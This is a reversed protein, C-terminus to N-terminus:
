STFVSSEVISKMSQFISVFLLDRFYVVIPDQFCLSILLAIRRMIIFELGDQEWIKDAKERWGKIVGGCDKKCGLCVILVLCKKTLVWDWLFTGSCKIFKHSRATDSEHECMFGCMSRVIHMVTVTVILLFHNNGKMVIFM